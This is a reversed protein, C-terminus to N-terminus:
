ARLLDINKYVLDALKDREAWGIHPNRKHWTVQRKALHWDDFEFLRIAEERSVEGQIMSWVIPYINSRMSQLSFDYKSALAKTERVIESDFMQLARLHIRERLEERDTTIGVTYFKHELHQRDSQSAKVEDNFNYDYILADVYLGTGGVIIPLNGRALIEDIKAEAYEKFDAVTFREDPDVLDIGFHSIGAQEVIDPKATGIDMGKYIARSDASIIEGGLKRAIEISVSTKGSATPGVIVLTKAWKTPKQTM